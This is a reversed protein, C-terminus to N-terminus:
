YGFDHLSTKDATLISSLVKSLKLLVPPLELSKVKHLEPIWYLSLPDCDEDEMSLQFSSLVPKLNNIFKLILRLHQIHLM